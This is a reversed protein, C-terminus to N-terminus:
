RDSDGKIDLQQDVHACIMTDPAVFVMYSLLICYMLLIGFVLGICIQKFSSQEKGKATQSPVYLVNGFNGSDAASAFSHQSASQVRALQHTEQGGSAVQINIQERESQVMPMDVTPMATTVSQMQINSKDYMSDDSDDDHTHGKTTTASHPLAVSSM